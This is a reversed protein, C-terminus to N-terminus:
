SLDATFGFQVAQNGLSQSRSRSLHEYMLERARFSNQNEIQETIETHYRLTNKRQDVPMERIIRSLQKKMLIGFTNMLKSAVFNGSCHIIQMHFDYDLQAFTESDTFLNEETQSLLSHLAALDEPTRRQAAHEVMEIQLSQRLEFLDRESIGDFVLSYLLPLYSSTGSPRSIYIGSRPAVTVIGLFELVRLAERLTPRSVGMLEVLEQENYLKKGYELKGRAILDLITDVIQLYTKKNKVSPIEPLDM